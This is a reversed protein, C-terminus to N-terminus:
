WRSENSKEKEAIKVDDCFQKMTNVINQKNANNKSLHCITISKPKTKIKSFYEVANDLGNHYKFGLNLLEFNDSFLIENVTSTDYNIEYLWHDVGELLPMKSFDTAYCFKEGTNLDKVVIGWNPVNHTVGFTLIQWDGIKFAQPKDELTKYSITKCGALELENLSKCHDQHEHSIFIFDIDSFGTFHENGTITSMKVGCDLIVFRGKGNKLFYCNGTSGSAITILKM